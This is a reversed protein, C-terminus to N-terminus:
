SLLEAPTWANCCVTDLIFCCLHVACIYLVTLWIFLLCSLLTVRGSALGAACAPVRCTRRSPHEVENVHQLAATMNLVHLHLWSVVVALANWSAVWNDKNYAGIEHVYHLQDETRNATQGSTQEGPGPAVRPLPKGVAAHVASLIMFFVIVALTCCLSRHRCTRTRWQYGARMTLSRRCLWESVM